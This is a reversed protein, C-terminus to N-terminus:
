QAPVFLDKMTLGLVDAGERMRQPVRLLDECTHADSACYFKCGEELAFRFLRLTAAEDARWGPFFASANLEIGTGGAALHRFVARIRDEPVLQMARFYGEGRLFICENLHAIGIKHWPLSLTCLAEMRTTLLEALLEPTDCAAPRVFGEMHFHNVPIVIMDFIDFHAPAIGLKNGGCYETECGFLVQVDEDKPLPLAERVHDLGQPAYWSSAGPVAEDWFHDTIVVRDYGHKKAFELTYAATLREDHCCASLFTHNHLDHNIPFPKDM